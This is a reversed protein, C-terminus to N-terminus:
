TKSLLISKKNNLNVLHSLITSYKVWNKVIDVSEGNEAISHYYLALSKNLTM